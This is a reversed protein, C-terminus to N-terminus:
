EMKATYTAKIIPAYKHMSLVSRKDKVKEVCM